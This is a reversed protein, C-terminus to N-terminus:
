IMGYWSKGPSLFSLVKLLDRANEPLIRFIMDWLTDLGHYAGSRRGLHREPLRRYREKFLEYTSDIMVGGIEENQILSAALSIALPLGEIRDLIKKAAIVEMTELLKQQQLKRWDNGLFHFLLDFREDPPFPKVTDGKRHDLKMFNYYARSTILIAGGAGLPWYTKLLGDQELLDTLKRSFITIMFYDLLIQELMGANDFIM